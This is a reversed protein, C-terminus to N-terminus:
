SALRNAGADGQEPDAENVPGAGPNLPQASGVFRAGASRTAAAIKQDRVYVYRQTTAVSAHGLFRRLEFITLGEEHLASAAAHRLMHPTVGKPLIRRLLVGVHASTLHGGLGNPFLWGEPRARIMRALAPPLPVVRVRGGKGYVRLDDGDLNRSHVSSIEKRRMGGTAGLLVMLMQRDDARLMTERIADDPAPRPEAMPVRVKPLRRAPDEDIIGERAAWGYFGRLASRVSRRMEPGWRDCAMYAVLAAPTAAWPNPCLREWCTLQYTRLDVTGESDGAARLEDLWAPVATRWGGTRLLDLRM